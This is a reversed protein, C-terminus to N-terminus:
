DKSQICEKSMTGLEIAKSMCGPAFTSILGGDFPVKCSNEQGSDLKGDIYRCVGKNPGDLDDSFVMAQLRGNEFYLVNIKVWPIHVGATQYAINSQMWITQCGTYKAVVAGKRPFVRILAMVAEEGSEDPPTMAACNQASKPIADLDVAFSPNPMWILSFFGLLNTLRIVKYFTNM